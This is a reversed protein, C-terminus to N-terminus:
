DPLSNVPVYFIGPGAGDPYPPVGEPTISVKMPVAEAPTYTEVHGDTYAAHLKAKPLRVAPNGEVSWYSSLLWTEPVVEGGALRECSGFAGPSRWHDYGFYDTVLLQSYRGMSAPGSPGRFLTDTESLYGVYNWYFCYTGGFPDSSVPTDPNDWDDGADWAEKLYKHKQPASPCTMTEGDQIYDYLYASMSRYVQPARNRNGIMKTPDSWNWKEGFGVTAVSDPYRDRHDAAFLSLATSIEKQNRMGLVSYVQRRVSNVAPVLIAMLISVISIVVLMEVLTFARV